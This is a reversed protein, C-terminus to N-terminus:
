RRRNGVDGDVQGVFILIQAVVTYLEQPIADGISLQTLVKALTQDPVVPVGHEEAARLINDAVIGRGAAVVVPADNRLPDYSLAAAERREHKNTM